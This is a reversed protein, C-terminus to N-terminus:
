ITPEPKKLHQYKEVYSSVVDIKILEKKFILLQEEHQNLLLENQDSRREVNDSRAEIRLIMEGLRNLGEELRILIPILEKLGQM